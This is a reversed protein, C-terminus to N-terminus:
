IQKEFFVATKNPNFYYPEIKNFGAEEYLKIAPHMYNLTDLRIKKYGLDKALKTAFFILSKGIGLKRFSPRVYMRKLECIEKDIKRIAISGAYRVDQKCLIIGGHPPAYMSSLSELEEEFRQFSLDVNIEHAYERFLEKAIGYSELNDVIKYELM